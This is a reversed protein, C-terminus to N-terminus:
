MKIIDTFVKKTGQNIQFLTASLVLSDCVLNKMM